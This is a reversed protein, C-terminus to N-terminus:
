FDAEQKYNKEECLLIKQGQPVTGDNKTPMRQIKEDKNFRQGQM